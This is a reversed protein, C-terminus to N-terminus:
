CCSPTDGSGWVGVGWGGGGAAGRTDFGRSGGDAAAREGQSTLARCILDLQARPTEVPPAAMVSPVAASALSSGFANGNPASPMASMDVHAVTSYEIGMKALVTSSM